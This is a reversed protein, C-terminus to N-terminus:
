GAEISPRDLGDSSAHRQEAEDRMTVAIRIEVKQSPAAAGAVVTGVDRCLDGDQLASVAPM